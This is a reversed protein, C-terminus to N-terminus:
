EILSLSRLHFKWAEIDDLNNDWGDEVIRREMIILSYNRIESIIYKRKVLLKVDSLIKEVDVKISYKFNIKM